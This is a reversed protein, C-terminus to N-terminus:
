HFGPGLHGHHSPLGQHRILLLGPLSKTASFYYQRYLAEVVHVLLPKTGLWVMPYIKTDLTQKREDGKCKRM